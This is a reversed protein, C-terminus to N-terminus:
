QSVHPDKKMTVSKPKHIRFLAAGELINKPVSAPEIKKKTVVFRPTYRKSPIYGCVQAPKASHKVRAMGKKLFARKPSKKYAKTKKEAKAPTFTKEM